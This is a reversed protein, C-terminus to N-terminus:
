EAFTANRWEISARRRAETVAGDRGVFKEDDAVPRGNEHVMFIGRVIEVVTLVTPAAKTM